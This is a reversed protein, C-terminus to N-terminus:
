IRDAYINQKWAYSILGRVIDIDKWRDILPRKVSHHCFWQFSKEALPHKNTFRLKDLNATESMATSVLNLIMFFACEIHKANLIETKNFGRNSSTANFCRFEITRESPSYNRNALNTLNLFSTRSGIALDQLGIADSARQKMHAFVSASVPSSYGNTKRDRQGSLGYFALEYRKSASLLCSIVKALRRVGNKTELSAGVLSQAKLHIHLGCSRDTETFRSVDNTLLLVNELNDMTFPVRFENTYDFSPTTDVSGDTGCSAGYEAVAQTAERFPMQSRAEIECAGRIAEFRSLTKGSVAKLSYSEIKQETTKM